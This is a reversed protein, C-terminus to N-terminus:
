AYGSEQRMFRRNALIWKLGVKGYRWFEEFSRCRVVRKLIYSPRFYFEMYFKQVYGDLDERSLPTWPSPFDVKEGGQLIYSRWHDKGSRAIMVDNLGTNPKAITRCVQVYDLELEKAFDITAMISERTDGPNGVMFFGLTSIGAERTLKVAKRVQGIDVGKAISSLVESSVSEIGYYIKRCGALFAAGLVEEDVQDVRSRCSWEVKIGRRVIERCFELVFPRSSFFSSSFFDVERVNFDKYCREVEDAVNQVSRHRFAQRNIACFSCEFPCGTSTLVITYNKRQSIFSSYLHNPLLHRAPFPYADFSVLSRSPPNVVVEDGSRYVLGEVTAVSLGGELCAVLRPLSENAEGSIGYDFCRRSLSEKPYLTINIGGVVIRVDLCEKFYSAWEVVRHFWYTDARFGILDPAFGKMLALAQEKTLKLANAEVIMVHHGAKELIAAVYALVIPPAHCFEEDVVRLNESFGQHDFPCHVLAIKM